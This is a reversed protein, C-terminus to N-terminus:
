NYEVLYYPLVYDAKFFIIYNSQVDKFDAIYCHYDTKELENPDNIPEPKIKGVLAKCILM